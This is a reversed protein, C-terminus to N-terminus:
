QRDTGITARANSGSRAQDSAIKCSCKLIQPLRLFVPTRWPIGCITPLRPSPRRSSNDKLVINLVRLRMTMSQTFNTARTKSLGNRYALWILFRVFYARLSNIILNIYLNCQQRFPRTSRFANCISRYIFALSESLSVMNLQFALLDYRYSVM